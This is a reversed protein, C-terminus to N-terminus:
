IVGMKAEVIIARGAEQRLQRMAFNRTSPAYFVPSHGLTVGKKSRIVFSFNGHNDQLQEIAGDDSAREILTTIGEKCLARTRFLRSFLIMHQNESQFTFAYYNDRQEIIFKAPM